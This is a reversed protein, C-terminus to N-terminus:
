DEETEADDEETDCCLGRQIEQEAEKRDKYDEIADSIIRDVEKDIIFGHGRLCDLFIPIMEPWTRDDESVSRIVVDGYDFDEVSIRM